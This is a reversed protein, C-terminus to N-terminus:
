FVSTGRVSNDREGKPQPSCPMSLGGQLFPGCPFIDLGPQFNLPQSLKGIEGAGQM